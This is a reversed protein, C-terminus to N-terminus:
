KKGDLKIEFETAPGNEGDRLALGYINGDSGRVLDSCAVGVPGDMAFLGRNAAFHYLTTLAGAPTIQFVTGGMRIGGYSTTGYFNGDSGLALGYRPASGGWGSAVFNNLTTLAGAPTIKFVTGGGWRGDQYTVGYFNGDSGRVLGAFVYGGDASNGAFQHLTTFRGGPTIRFVTGKGSAGGQETTGYFNGDLGKVLGEWPLAGDNDGQFEHLLTFRGAPTIKFVTGNGAEGQESTGYFNGQSDQVLGANARASYEFTHLVTRVGAPTIKIFSKRNHADLTDTMGYLNGDKGRVLRADFLAPDVGKGTFRFVPKVATAARGAFCSNFAVLLFACAYPFLRM